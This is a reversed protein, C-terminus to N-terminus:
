KCPEKRGKISELLELQERAMESVKRGASSRLGKHKDDAVSLLRYLSDKDMGEAEVLVGKVAAEFEREREERPDNRPEAAAPEAVEDEWRRGRLWTAPLPIFRRREKNQPEWNQAKTQAQIAATLKEVPPRDKEVQHWAAIADSKADKRPWASWFTDFDPTPGKDRGKSAGKDGEGMGRDKSGTEITTETETETESISQMHKTYAKSKNHKHSANAQRSESYACGKEWLDCLKPNYLKGDRSEFCQRIRKGSGNAWKEDSLRSLMALTADEDPLSCDMDPSNWAYALLRIYAGEEDPKMAAIAMSGLWNDPYFPFSPPRKM